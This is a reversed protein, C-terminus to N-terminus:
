PRGVREIDPPPDIDTALPRYREGVKPLADLGATLLWIVSSWSPGTGRTARHIERILDLARRLEEAEIAKRPQKGRWALHMERGISQIPVGQNQYRSRVSRRRQGGLNLLRILAEDGGVIEAADDWPVRYEAREKGL